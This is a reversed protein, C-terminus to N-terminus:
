RKQDIVAAIGGSAGGVVAAPNHRIFRVYLNASRSLVQAMAATAREWSSDNGTVDMTFGGVIAPRATSSSLFAFNNGHGTGFSM